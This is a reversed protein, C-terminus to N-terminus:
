DCGIADMIATADARLTAAVERSLKKGSQARVENRFAALVGCTSDLDPVAFYTQALVIKNALSKGPGIGTVAALLQSLMASPSVIPTLVYAHGGNARRDFGNVLIQGRDNIDVGEFFTVFPQLPDAPDILANLDHM